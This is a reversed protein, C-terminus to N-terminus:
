GFVIAWKIAEAGVGMSDRATQGSETIWDTGNGVMFNGDSPTLAAIDDLDDDWAQADTGIVIGLNERATAADSAGTGGEEIANIHSFFWREKLGTTTGGWTVHFSIDTGVPLESFSANGYEDMTTEEVFTHTDTRYARIRAGSPTRGRDDKLDPTILARTTM